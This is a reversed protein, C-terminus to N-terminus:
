QMCQPISVACLWGPSRGMPLVGRGQRQCPWAPASLWAFGQPHWPLPDQGCGRRERAGAGGAGGGGCSGCHGKGPARGAWPEASGHGGPCPCPAERPAPVPGCGGQARQLQRRGGCYVCLCTTERCRRSGVIAELDSSAGSVAVPSSAACWMAPAIPPEAGAGGWGRCLPMRHGVPLAAGLLSRGWSHRHQCVCFSEPEGM